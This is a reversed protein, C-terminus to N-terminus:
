IRMESLMFAQGEPPFVGRVMYGNDIPHRRDPAWSLRDPTLHVDIRNGAFGLASVIEELPRIEPAVIDLLTLSPRDLGKVAVITDLDPIHFLRIEPTLIAKLMFLAPHDCASALWSSPTRRALINRLITVDIDDMLSMERCTACTQRRDWQASFITEELPRFGFPLYLRPTGTVLIVLSAEADAYDLAREMLSRFLGNGRWEPRVAVSQVGFAPVREGSLWLQRRYLSVNAVLNEGCWWGFAVVSPDYGLRNLPSVDIRFIDAILRALEALGETSHAYDSRFQLEPM